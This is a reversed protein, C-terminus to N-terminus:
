VWEKYLTMIVNFWEQVPYNYAVKQYGVAGSMALGFAGDKYELHPVTGEFHFLGANHGFSFKPLWIDLSFAFTPGWTDLNALVKGNGVAAEEQGVIVSM